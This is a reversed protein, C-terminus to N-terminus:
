NENEYTSDLLVNIETQISRAYMSSTILFHEKKDKNFDDIYKEIYSAMKQIDLLSDKLKEDVM